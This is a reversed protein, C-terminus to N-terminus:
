KPTVCCWPVLLNGLIKTKCNTQSIDSKERIRQLTVVKIENM